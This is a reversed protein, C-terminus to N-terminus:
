ERKRWHLRKNLVKNKFEKLEWLNGMKAKIRVEIEDLDMKTLCSNNILKCGIRNVEFVDNRDIALQM